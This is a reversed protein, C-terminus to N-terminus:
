FFKSMKSVRYIGAPPQPSGINLTVTTSATQGDTGNTRTLQFVSIGNALGTINTTDSSPSSITGSGSLKTWLTAAQQGNRGTPYQRTIGNATYTTTGAPLAVTPSAVAAYPKLSYTMMNEYGNMGNWRETAPNYELQWGGHGGGPILHLLASGPVRGNMYRYIQMTATYLTSDGTGISLLSRGGYDVWNSYRANNITTNIGVSLGWYAAYSLYFLNGNDQRMSLWEQAAGRSLSTVYIRNRDVKNNTAILNIANQIAIGPTTGDGVGIGSQMQLAAFIPREGFVVGNWGNNIQWMPYNVSNMFPTINTGNEGAGPLVIFLAQPVTTDTLRYGLNLNYSNAPVTTYTWTYQAKAGICFLLFFIVLKLKM